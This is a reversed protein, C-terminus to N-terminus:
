LFAWVGVSFGFQMPVSLWDCCMRQSEIENRDSLVVDSFFCSGNLTVQHLVSEKLGSKKLYNAAIVGDIQGKGASDVQM